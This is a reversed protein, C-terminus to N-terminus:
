LETRIRIFSAFRPVGNKTKGFFKYTIQTGIAPPNKREENSFGSGIKFIIGSKTKVKLAGLMNIFKGKGQIHAIVEAEDDQYKKLKMLHQVRGVKYLANQHHLMLGEGGLEVISDLHAFLSSVSRFKQQTIMNLYSSNTQKTINKMVAIRQSFDGSTKPLDFIMFRIKQWGNDAASKQRIIGSTQEFQGRAIWLEGDMVTNPWNQTFWKPANINNGQRTLLHKGNWYGRVGDLKESVWYNKINEVTHYISGKQIPPKEEAVILLSFLLCFSAFIFSYIQKLNM